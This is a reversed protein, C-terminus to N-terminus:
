PSQMYKALDSLGNIFMVAPFIADTVLIIHMLWTKQKKNLLICAAIVLIPLAIVYLGVLVGLWPFSGEALAFFAIFGYIASQNGPIAYFVCPGEKGLELVLILVALISCGLYAYSFLRIKKAM